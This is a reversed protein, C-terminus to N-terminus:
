WPESTGLGETTEDPEYREWWARIGAVERHVLQQVGGRAQVREICAQEDVDLVVTETAGCLLAAKGRASRTAGSRIVAAQADRQGALRTIAARFAAESGAWCPDDADYVELGLTAAYTSKGAGPPGCVLVVRRTM